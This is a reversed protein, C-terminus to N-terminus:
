PLAIWPSAGDITWGWRWVLYAVSAALGICTVVQLWRSAPALPPRDSRADTTAHDSTLEPMRAM